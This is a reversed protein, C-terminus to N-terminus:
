HVNRANRANGVDRTNGTGTKRTTVIVCQKISSRIVTEPKEKTQKLMPNKRCLLFGKREDFKHFDSMM